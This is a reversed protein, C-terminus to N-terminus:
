SSSASLPQAKGPNQWARHGPLLGAEDGLWALSPCSPCSCASSISPPCQAARHLCGACTRTGEAARLSSLEPLLLPLPLLSREGSGHLLPGPSGGAACMSATLEM